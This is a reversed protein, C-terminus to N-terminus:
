TMESPPSDALLANDDHGQNFYAVFKNGRLMESMDVASPPALRELPNIQVRAARQDRAWRAGLARGDRAWRAGLARETHDIDTNYIHIQIYITSIYDANKLMYAGGM